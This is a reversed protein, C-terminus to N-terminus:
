IKFTELVKAKQQAPTISIIDTLHYGRQLFYSVLARLPEDPNDASAALSILEFYPINFLSLAKDIMNYEIFLGRQCERKFKVIDVNDICLQVVETQYNDVAYANSNNVINIFDLRSQSVNIFKTRYARSSQMLSKINDTMVM